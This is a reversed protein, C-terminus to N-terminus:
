VNIKKVMQLGITKFSVTCFNSCFQRYVTYLNESQKNLHHRHILLKSPLDLSSPADMSMNEKRNPCLRQAPNQHSSAM